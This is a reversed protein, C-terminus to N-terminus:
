VCAIDCINETDYPGFINVIRQGAPFGVVCLVVDECESGNNLWFNIDDGRRCCQTRGLYAPNCGIAWYSDVVVCYWKDPELAPWLPPLEQGM